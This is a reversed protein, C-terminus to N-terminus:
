EAAVEAAGAEILAEVELPQYGVEGLVEVTHEGRRPAPRRVTLPTEDLIMNPSVERYPGAVPHARESVMGRHLDPDDLIEDLSPVPNSPIGEARCLDLWESTTRESIIEGLKAYVQEANLLRSSHDAFWPEDLLAERGVAAFLRRWHEDTYPMMAVYGDLTRHPGRTTTMIRSYGALQGPVAARSLHEILAFSLVADFMPVEVRQGRGTRERHLLAALVAQVITQGAVKDAIISPMFSTTGVTAESLRPLGTAAQIIDDYAPRDEEATGARFGQAQCYVLRERGARLDEYALGLRRLPGPRLNTVFVDCTDLIKLFASMGEPHKLDLSVARKNRNINLAIGSLEPHPGGGMFRNTDGRGTEVKIVDAGLDGMVQTAYPGMIVSTLDLVRVGDLVAEGRTADM